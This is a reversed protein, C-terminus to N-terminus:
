AKLTKITLIGLFTNQVCKPWFLQKLSITDGTSAGQGRGECAPQKKEKFRLHLTVLFVSRKSFLFLSNEKRNYSFLAVHFAAEAELFLFFCFSLEM